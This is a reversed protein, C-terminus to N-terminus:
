QTYTGFEKKRMDVSRLSTYSYILGLSNIVKSDDVLILPAFRNVILELRDGHSM